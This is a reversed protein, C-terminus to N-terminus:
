IKRTRCQILYTTGQIDFKRVDEIQYTKSDYTIKNGQVCYSEQSYDFWFLLDGARAIGEKVQDDAESLVQVHCKISTHDTETETVTRYEDTGTSTSVEIITCTNGIDEIGKQIFRTDFLSM